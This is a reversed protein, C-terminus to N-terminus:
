LLLDVVGYQEVLLQVLLEKSFDRLLLQDSNGVQSLLELEIARERSSGDLMQILLAQNALNCMMVRDLDVGARCGHLILLSSGLLGLFSLLSFLGLFSLLSSLGLLMLSSIRQQRTWYINPDAKLLQIQSHTGITNLM